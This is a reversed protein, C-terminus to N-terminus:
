HYFFFYNKRFKVVKKVYEATEPYPITQLTRGDESLEPRKLWGAVTGEGANYAAIATAEEFRELLYKLYLCGLRLNYEGEKLREPQFELQNRRCIFEATAPMLQMLGLAGSHSEAEERFGSEAKMVAYVLEGDLEMEVVIERYPRQYGVARISFFLVIGTLLMVALLVGILWIGKRGREMM